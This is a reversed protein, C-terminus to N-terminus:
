VEAMGVIARARRRHLLQNIRSSLNPCPAAELDRALWLEVLSADQHVRREDSHEFAADRLRAVRHMAHCAAGSMVRHDYSRAHRGRHQKEAARAPDTMM